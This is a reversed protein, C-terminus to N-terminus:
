SEATKLQGDMNTRSLIILHLETERMKHFYATTSQAAAQQWKSSYILSKATRDSIAIESCLFTYYYILLLRVIMISVIKLGKTFLVYNHM